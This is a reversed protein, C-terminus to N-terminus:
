RSGLPWREMSTYTGTGTDSRVLAFERATWAIAPIAAPAIARAARRVLTLHATFRREELGFGAARLEVALRAQLEVLAAPVASCGAWAVHADRFSGVRDVAIRFGAGPARGAAERAADVRAPQVEGLFALTVHLKAAPVPKGQAERALGEALQALKARAADPPWLAFFLRM